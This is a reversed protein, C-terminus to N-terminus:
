LYEVKEFWRHETQDELQVRVLRYFNTEDLSTHEGEIVVSKMHKGERQVIAHVKRGIGNLFEQYEDRPKPLPVLVAVATGAALAIFNRRLM